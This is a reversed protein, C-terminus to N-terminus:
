DSMRSVRWAIAPGYKHGCTGICHFRRSQIEFSKSARIKKVPARQHHFESFEPIANSGDSVLVGNDEIIQLTTELIPPQLLYVDSGGEGPSDGRYFFVGFQENRAALTQILEQADAKLYITRFALGSKSATWRMTTVNARLLKWHDAIQADLVNDFGQFEFDMAPLADRVDHRHIMDCFLFTDIYHPLFSNIPQRVDRGAMPYFLTSNQFASPSGDWWSYGANRIRQPQVKTM